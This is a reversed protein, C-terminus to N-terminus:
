PKTKSISPYASLVARTATSPRESHIPVKWRKESYTGFQPEGSSGCVNLVDLDYASKARNLQVTVDSNAFNVLRVTEALRRSLERIQREYQSRATILGRNVMKQEADRVEKIITWIGIGGVAVTVLSGTALMAIILAIRISM